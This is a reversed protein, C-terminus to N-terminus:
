QKAAKSIMITRFNTSIDTTKGAKDVLKTQTDKNETKNKLSTRDMTLQNPTAMMTKPILIKLM